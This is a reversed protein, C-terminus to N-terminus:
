NAQRSIPGIKRTAWFSAIAGLVFVTTLVLVMNYFEWQVPYAIATGPVYIFPLSYQLLVIGSALLVGVIGGWFSILCGLLFFVRRIQHSTLGMAQYISFQPRKDVIMMLLAGVVNFLAIILVLTFILYVALNETKLMKYFAANLDNQDLLRHNQQLAPPLKQRLDEKSLSPANLELASFQDPSYRLLEQAFAIPTYVYKKDLDDSIRYLGVVFVPRTKLRTQQLVASPTDEPVTINLFSDYDFVGIGLASALGYGLVTESREMTSWEGVVVLSDIPITEPYDPPVGKLYAVQNKSEFSLFVKEELVPAWAIIGEIQDLVASNVSDLVITKGQEPVLKFDPDLGSTFSVGFDKLGSFASLVILLAASAVVVVVMAIANIRNIVTQKSKTFFYRWAIRFAIRM